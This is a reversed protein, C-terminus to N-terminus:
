EYNFNIIGAEEVLSGLPLAVIDLLGSDYTYDQDHKFAHKYKYTALPPYAGTGSNTLDEGYVYVTGNEYDISYQGPLAPLGNLRFIIEKTFAPHLAGVVNTNPDTFTVGALTMLDGNSDVIPAHELNFVNIIPPLEERISDFVTTVSVTTPDVVIGLNKYEYQVEVRIINELSFDPNELIKDSLKVQNDELTAYSFAYDQDYRSDKIQYGLTTIDYTLIPTATNQLFVVSTVKTIPYSTLNLTLTNVNFIGDENTSDPTANENATARQLTIPFSPFEDYPYTASGKASSPARGLRVIEYAGEEDLRDFPGAGRIKKEDVVDFSLYNENKVQRIDYLARSLIVSLSQIYKGVMTTDDDINYINDKYFAGLYNKVPNDPSLPAVILYRNTVGDESLRYEAHLSVFPHLNVSQFTLFYSALPSLPLCKIIFTNGKIKVSLVEADPVNNTDSVISVNGKVLSTNLDQTFAVKINSSNIVEVNQIRLNAM